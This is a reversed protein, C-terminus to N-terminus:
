LVKLPIERMMAFRSVEVEHDLVGTIFQGRDLFGRQLVDLSSAPRLCFELLMMVMMMIHFPWSLSLQLWFRKGKM